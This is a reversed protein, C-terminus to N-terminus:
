EASSRVECSWSHEWAWEALDAGKGPTGFMVISKIRPETLDVVEDTKPDTVRMGTLMAM